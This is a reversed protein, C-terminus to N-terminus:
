ITIGTVNAGIESTVYKACGGWGCGIELVQYVPQIDALGVPRKYKNM